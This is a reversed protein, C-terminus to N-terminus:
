NKEKKEIELESSLEWIQKNKQEVDVTIRQLQETLKKNEDQVWDLDRSSSSKSLVLKDYLLFWLIWTVAILMYIEM